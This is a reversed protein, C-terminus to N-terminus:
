EKLADVLFSILAYIALTLCAVSIGVHMRKWSVLEATSNRVAGTAHHILCSIINLFSIDSM